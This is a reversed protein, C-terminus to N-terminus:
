GDIMAQSPHRGIKNITQDLFNEEFLVVPLRRDSWKGEEILFVPLRRDSWKGEEIVPTGM